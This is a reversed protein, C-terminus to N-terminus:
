AAAKGSNRLTLEHLVLEVEERRMRYMSALDKEPVGRLWTGFLKWKTQELMTVRARPRAIPIIKQIGQAQRSKASPAGTPLTPNM